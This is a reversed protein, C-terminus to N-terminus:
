AICGMPGATSASTTTTSRAAAAGPAGGHAAGRVHALALLHAVADKLRSSREAPGTAALEAASTREHRRATAELNHTRQGTLARYIQYPVM